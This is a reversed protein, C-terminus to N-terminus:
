EGMCAMGPLQGGSVMLKSVLISIGFCHREVDRQFVLIGLGGVQIVM